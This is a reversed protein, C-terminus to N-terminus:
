KIEVHVKTTVSAPTAVIPVFNGDKRITLATIEAEWEDRSEYVTYNITTETHAGYGHGPAERSRQDGPISITGFTIIAYHMELPIDSVTHCYKPYPHM